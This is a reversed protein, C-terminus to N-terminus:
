RTTLRRSLILALFFIASKITLLSFITENLSGFLQRQTAVGNSTMTFSCSSFLRLLIFLFLHLINKLHCECTMIKRTNGMKKSATVHRQNGIKDAKTVTNSQLQQLAGTSNGHKHVTTAKLKEKDSNIYKNHWM